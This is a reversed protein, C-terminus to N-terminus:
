AAQAEFLEHLCSGARYEADTRNWEEVVLARESEPMLALREVRRSDDALMEELVRRLYGMWREVTEREFLATAWTVSGEIRDGAERLSLLLDLKAQVQTAGGGGVGGVEVGPLSLGEGRPTNQWALWVQFLPTYAPTRVPDVREVVQEFPIDQHRQAELTREKVRDLLEAVTPADSLDVRVALTNIFFGILGEIERRGRGATPTGIVVDDQGSLRGLVAAWGALVTMYLTAGHRRSLAKLGATLEAGLEVGLRAGAHDMEAPRPRDTPLELLEPAGALTRAWYEAQERLVDGEVWRRQWVAYDAYQVPLAALQADSGQRHAAYLASLEDFFVGMSWGDSVIHHLTLLLVHDDDALCILRGRVLPGRRLDFPARAEEAILRELEADPCGALHHEVLHFGVGVAAIRQEPAGDVETFTTRLAEHRAVIGDLARALAARDLAGRLRLRQAAHYASGLGGMQELFWLRQQAISLPLRGGRDVREIPPLEARGAAALVEALDKLVPFEFVKGPAMELDLVQEVHSAMQLALLSHGGMEFFDDHRGVREVGLVESWVEALAREVEGVPAEYGHRAFAEGDPSPLAKRDLKGNPTLPLMELHVYAPPVMYEPLTEGLYARLVDAGATPDGVVYAVLRKEGPEDERALVVAERVAPHEALRAEIEGPEIRYGRVKVQHDVRGVFDLRGDTLWRVRDGTRYLRAGPEGGFPDPVFREATLGPRGLYGRAVGAGGVYLEGPVGVPLPALAADVVYARVNAIPAGIDPKRAPAACEAATSWITAETPGYLNWLRHRAGWREVLEPPLAEGAVTITRLAPLDGAPLAALASPPLTVITVAHRRLLALLGPGPLLEERPALCLAAGSALAMVLVFAAA